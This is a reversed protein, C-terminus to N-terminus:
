PGIICSLSASTPGPRHEPVRRFGLSDRHRFEALVSAGSLTRRYLPSNLLPIDKSTLGEYTEAGGASPSKKARGTPAPPFGAPLGM